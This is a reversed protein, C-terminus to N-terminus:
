MDGGGERGGLLSHTPLARQGERQEVRQQGMPVQAVVLEVLQGDVEPVEVVLM